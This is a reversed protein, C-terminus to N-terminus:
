RSGVASGLEFKCLGRTEEWLLFPEDELEKSRDGLMDLGVEGTEGGPRWVKASFNEAAELRGGLEWSETRVSPEFSVEKRVDDGGPDSFSCIRRIDDGGPDPFYPSHPSSSSPSRLSFASM